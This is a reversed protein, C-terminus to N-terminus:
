KGAKLRYALIAGNKYGDKAVHYIHVNHEASYFGNPQNGPLAKAVEAPFHQGDSWANTEPDYVFIGRDADKEGWYKMLVVKDNATDYTMVSGWNPYKIFKSNRAGLDVLANTGVDYAWLVNTTKPDPWDGGGMYVRSRKPDYCAVGEIGWPPPPGKPKANTWERKELDYLWSEGSRLYHFLTERGDKAVTELIPASEIHPRNSTKCLEWKGSDAHYIWPGQKHVVNVDDWKRYHGLAKPWFYSGDAMFAFEKRRASYATANWGHCMQSIPLPEGKENVECKLEPDFKVTLGKTQTGPYCCVWAHANLNYFFLEDNYYERGDRENTGGHPGEGYLFAGGLDPAAAMKPTFARGLALGWKPDPAPAGLNLWAGDGLAKLKEVHPGPKSPLAALPGKKDAEKGASPLEGAGASSAGAALVLGALMIITRM